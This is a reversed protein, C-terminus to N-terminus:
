VVYKQVHPDVACKWVQWRCAIINILFPLSNHQTMSLKHSNVAVAISRRIL